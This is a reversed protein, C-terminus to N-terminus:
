AATVTKSQVVNLLQNLGAAPNAGVDFRIARRKRQALSQFDGLAQAQMLLGFSFPEGPIKIDRGPTATIQIFVGSDPGGKHLQGTSHLFRPGYGTTTAVKFRDRIATRIKQLYADHEATEEIYALVAVYDGPKIRKLQAALVSALTDSKSATPFAAPPEALVRYEGEKIVLQQEPLAGKSTFEGLLRKTNDKSEQVNPQDFPNIGILQGAIATAFEWLFFEEGLDGADHLIHRLVPHGAAELARLRGELGPDNKQLTHLYVFIRDNGYADPPGLPEASVPVIGRGEKGTSEAILQEIWLGVSDIPSAAIITLKDRGAKALIGLAAGLRAGPNEAASVVDTCAHMAHHARDLLKDLDGGMLAFPVMGFFSLASYRGGIDAPNTFIRRFKDREAEQQLKTSPDTIAIFNQGARDGLKEKVRDYFYKHFMQPETTGGSKSAVIFLTKAVDLKNELDRVAAPVTSDLVLLEPWGKQPGFTRRLVEPCLSSGGMGLVVAHKYGAKRIEEAFAKLDAAHEHVLDAVHLWGLANKIIAQHAPESKWLSADSKWIRGVFGSEDMKALTAKVEPEYKGLAAHRREVLGLLAEDRRSEIVNLLKQFSEVFLKVGDKSLEDTIKKFNVGVAALEQMTQEADRINEELSLRPRGHDRFANFTQPPVTDVTEPGILEEVYIVDRYKPNKTSTSAWLQRQPMAGQARLKAFREGHFINKYSQYALKANAIAVKGFLRSIRDKTAQDTAANLKATLEKEVATDIRSVFFSAVSGTRNVPKGSAALRELGRIYAEAVQEYVEKSFILTVNINLGSAIAEEIAPIGEATAPIKIMVNPRDLAAALRKAEEITEKTKYGLEPSVELSAYGDLGGTSDYVTRLVDAAAGIDEVVLAQYIEDISAGRNSLERLEEAYDTSGGIAKEFITPNSTLGRLGDERIMRELEGSTLLGRRVQDYWVSQGLKGLEVLPNITAVPNAAM